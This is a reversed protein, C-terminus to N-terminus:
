NIVLKGIGVVSKSSYIKYFYIGNELGNRTIQFQKDTIGTMSRVKKGLVDTLEFSYVDNINSKIEFTAMDTFPNPYVLIGEQMKNEAIGTAMACHGANGTPNRLYYIKHTANTYIVHVACGTYAVFNAGPLTYPADWTAGGTSSHFYKSGASSSCVVHLDNGDRVMDPLFYTHATDNSIDVSPGWTTGTDASQAILLQYRGSPAGTAIVDVHSGDSWGMVNYDQIPDVVVDPGWTVGYDNSEKYLIQFLGVRNDNWSMHIHSGEAHIAEDESRGVAFTLQQHASWTVGNDTSRKFFIETNYPAAATVSDNAIYVNNGSVSIAPWDATSDLFVNPGWTNGGDLSHKYWSARHGTITDIERWAVHVNLGNVAIAPNWANKSLSTIAIPASWTLGTDLSHSYYLAAKKSSLKDTWVVHLTDGSTGLCSGMSENLGASVAAPSLNVPASWQGFTLASIVCSFIITLLLKAKM